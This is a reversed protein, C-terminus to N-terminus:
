LTKGENFAHINDRTHLKILKNFRKRQQESLFPLHYLGTYEKFRTSRALKSMDSDKFPSILVGNDTYTPTNM